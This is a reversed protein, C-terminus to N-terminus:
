ESLFFNYFGGRFLIKEVWLFRSLYFTVNNSTVNKAWYKQLYYTVLKPGFVALSDTVNIILKISWYDSIELLHVQVQLWNSKLALNCYGAYKLYHYM